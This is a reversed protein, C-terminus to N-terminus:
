ILAKAKLLAALQAAKEPASGTIVQSARSRAPLRFGVCDVKGSMPELTDTPITQFIQRNARLLNSLSPYRPRNIGPQLALLAPLTLKMMERAGGEIEREISVDKLDRGLEMGIVQTAFPIDMFAATMPGVQGNMLDESMSGCLILGYERSRAFEAIWAAVAVPEPDANTATILHIGEDGGMGMARKLVQSTQEPGVTIVHIHVDPLFEKIHVAQEVAFEDFRNMDFRAFPDLEAMGQTRSKVVIRELDPVQKVCVLIKM